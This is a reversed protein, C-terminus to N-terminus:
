PTPTTIDACDTLPLYVTDADRDYGALVYTERRPFEIADDAITADKLYVIKKMEVALDDADVPAFLFCRKRKFIVEQDEVKVDTIVEYEEGQPQITYLLSPSSHQVRLVDFRSSRIDLTKGMILNQAFTAIQGVGGYARLGVIATTPGAAGVQIYPGEAIGTIAPLDGYPITEHLPPRPQRPEDQPPPERRDGPPKKEEEKRPPKRIPGEKQIPDLSPFKFKRLTPNVLKLEPPTYDFNVPGRHTLPQACNGVANMMENASLPNVGGTVLSQEILAAQKTFM